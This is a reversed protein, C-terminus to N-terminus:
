INTGNQMQLTNEELKEKIHRHREEDLKADYCESM